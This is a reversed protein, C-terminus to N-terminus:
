MVGRLVQDIGAVAREVDFRRSVSRRGVSGLWVGRTPDAVHRAIGDALERWSTGVLNVELPGAMVEALGGRRTGVVPVESALAEAAVLGFPEDWQSPVVLLDMARYLEDVDDRPGLWMTGPPGIQRLEAEFREGDSGMWRSPAGIVMLSLRTTSTATLSSVAHLLQEIGKPHDLRGVYGVLFVDDAVGLRARIADREGPRAPRFRDLDVGNHVVDIREAPLGARVWLRRTHESVAIFRDIGTRPGFVGPDVGRHCRGLVFRRWGARLYFPPLHLHGVVPRDIARALAIADGFRSPDHVYLVDSPEFTRILADDDLEDRRHLEANADWEALLDGSRHYLCDVSWGRRALREAAALEYRELGGGGDLVGAFFGV